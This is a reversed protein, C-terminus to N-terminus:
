GNIDIKQDQTLIQKVQETFGYRLKRIMLSYESWIIKDHIKIKAKKNMDVFRQAINHTISLTGTAITYHRQDLIQELNNNRSAVRGSRIRDQEAFINQAGEELVQDIYKRAIFNEPNNNKLTDVASM